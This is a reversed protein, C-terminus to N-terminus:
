LHYGPHRGDVLCLAGRHGQVTDPVDPDHGV